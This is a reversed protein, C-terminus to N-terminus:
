NKRTKVDAPKTEIVEKSFCRSPKDTKNKKKNKKKQKKRNNKGDEEKKLMQQMIQSVNQKGSM